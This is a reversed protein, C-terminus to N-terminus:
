FGYRWGNVQKFARLEGNDMASHEYSLIAVEYDLNVIAYYAGGQKDDGIELWYLENGAPDIDLITLLSIRSEAINLTNSCASRVEKYELQSDKHIFLDLTVKNSRRSMKTRDLPQNWDNKSKLAGIDEDTYPALVYCQDEYYYVYDKDIMQCVVVATVEEEAIVSQTIYEYLIRGQSDTDIISCEYTGGKLEPCFMGPVGYSGCIALEHSKAGSTCATLALAVFLIVFWTKKM